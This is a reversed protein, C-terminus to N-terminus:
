RDLRAELAALKESLAKITEAQADHSRRLATLERRIAPDDVPPREGRDLPVAGAGPDPQGGAVPRLGPALPPQTPAAPQETFARADVREFGIVKGHRDVVLEVNDGPRVRSPFVLTKLTPLLESDVTKVSTVKIGAAEAKARADREPHNVVDFTSMSAAPTGPAPAVLKQTLAMKGLVGAVGLQAKRSRYETGLNADKFWSLGHRAMTVSAIDKKSKAKDEPPALKDFMGGLVSCCAKEVALKIMPLVPVLSMWYEVTPFTHVYRRHHFNCIQHVKGDKISIDALYVKKGKPDPCNVLLHECVCDKLFQAFRGLAKLFAVIAKWRYAELKAVDITSRWPQQATPTAPVVTITKSVWNLVYFSGGGADTAISTPGVQLPHFDKGEIEADGPRYARGLYTDEYTVMAWDGAASYAVRSASSAGLPVTRVPQIQTGTSKLNWVVLRKGASGGADAIAWLELVDREGDVALALDDHASATANSQEPIEFTPGSGPTDPFIGLVHTFAVPNQDSDHAGAYLATRTDATRVVLHGSAHFARVVTPLELPHTLDFAYLGKGRASAFVKGPSRADVALTVLKLSCQVQNGSWTIKGAGDLKGVAFVSDVKADGIWAIAYIQNGDFAVDQVEASSTPFPISAVFRRTALDFVDIAGGNGCTYALPRKPHVRIRHHHHAGFITTPRAADAPLDAREVDYAPFALDDFMACFSKSQLLAKLRDYFGRLLGDETWVSGPKAADGSLYVHRGSTQNLLQWALNVLAILRRAREGVPETDAGLLEGKAFDIVKVVCDNYLDVLITGDLLETWGPKHKPDYAEAHLRGKVPGGGKDIWLSLAGDPIQGNAGAHIVGDDIGLQVVDLASLEDNAPSHVKIDAGTPHIAYGDRVFIWRRPDAVEPHAQAYTTTMCQVQLGCVVGWGHLHQNHFDLDHDRCLDEIADQVTTWGRECPDNALCVDDACIHTLPPFQERCDSLVKATTGNWEVVALAVQAPAGHHSPQDISLGDLDRPWEVDGTLTRAPILWHDGTRYTGDAFRVEVGDELALYGDNTAPRTVAALAAATGAHDWRRVRPHFPFDAIATSGTATGPALQVTTGVVALIQVLTGPSRDLERQDDILEIWDGAALGLKRDRGTTALTLETATSALWPMVVSGNERSWKFTLDAAGFAGGHHIEVRYLQNELRRYRAAPEIICPNTGTAPRRARARLAGAGVPAPLVTACSAASGLDGLRRLRLQWATRERSAGDVGGLAVERLGPESLDTVHHAFVELYAGYVGAAGTWTPLAPAAPWTTGAPRPWDPQVIYSPIRRATAGAVGIPSSDPAPGVDSVGVTVRRNALDLATVRFRHTPAGPAAVELWEGVILPRGDLTLAPLALIGAAPSTVPVASGIAEVVRGDVHYRGPRVLLDGGGPAAVVQFGDGNPTGSAGIVDLSTLRDRHLQLQAQENLEADGLAHGQPYVVRAFRQEPRFTDRTLDAKM